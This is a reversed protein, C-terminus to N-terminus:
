AKWALVKASQGLAPLGLGLEVKDAKVMIDDKLLHAYHKETVAVTAHGLVKSLTDSSQIM